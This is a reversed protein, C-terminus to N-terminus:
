DTSQYIKRLRHKDLIRKDYYILYEKNVELFKTLDLSVAITRQSGSLNTVSMENKSISQIIVAEFTSSRYSNWFWILGITIILFLISRQILRKM